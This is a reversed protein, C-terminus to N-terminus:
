SLSQGPLLLLHCPRRVALLLLLLLQRTLLALAPRLAAHLAGLVRLMARMCRRRILAECPLLLLLEHMSM